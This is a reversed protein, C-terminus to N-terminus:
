KRRKRKKQKRAQYEYRQQAQADPPLLATRKRYDRRAECERCYSKCNLRGPNREDASYLSKHKFTQCRGHCWVMDKELMAVVLAEFDQEEDSQPNLIAEEAAAETSRVSTFVQATGGFEGTDDFVPVNKAGTTIYGTTDNETM